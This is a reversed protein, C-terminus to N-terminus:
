TWSKGIHFIMFWVLNCVSSTKVVRHSPDLITLIKVCLRSHATSDMCRVDYVFVPPPWKRWIMESNIKNESKEWFTNWPARIQGNWMYFFFACQHDAGSGGNLSFEAQSAVCFTLCFGFSENSSAAGNVIWELQWTKQVQTKTTTDTVCLFIQFFDSKKWPPSGKFLGRQLCTQTSMLCRKFRQWWVLSAWTAPPAAWSSTFQKARWNSSAQVHCHITWPFLRM